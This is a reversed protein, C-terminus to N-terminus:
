GNEAPDTPPPALADWADLAALMNEWAEMFAAMLLGEEASADSEGDWGEDAEAMDLDAAHLLRVAEALAKGALALRALDLAQLNIENRARRLRRMREVEAVPVSGDAEVKAQIDKRETARAVNRGLREWDVSM